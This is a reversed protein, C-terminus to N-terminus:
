SFREWASQRSVGLAGGIDAWSVERRRLEGVIQQMFERGGDAAVAVSALQSLLQDDPQELPKFVPADSPEQFPEDDLIKQCLRVCENCIFIRPGAILKEVKHQSKGCFSCHLTKPLKLGFRKQFAKLAKADEKTSKGAPESMAAGM